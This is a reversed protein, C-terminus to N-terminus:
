NSKVSQPPIDIYIFIMKKWLISIYTAYSCYKRAIKEKLEMFQTAYSLFFFFSLFRSSKLRPSSIHQVNNKRWTHNSLWESLRAVSDFWAIILERIRFHTPGSLQFQLIFRSCWQLRPPPTLLEWPIGQNTTLSWDQLKPFKSYRKMAIARLNVRVRLPIM